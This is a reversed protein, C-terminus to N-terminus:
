LVPSLIRLLPHEQCQHSTSFLFRTSLPTRMSSWTHLPCTLGPPADSCSRSSPQTPHPPSPNQLLPAEPGQPAPWPAPSLHQQSPQYSSIYSFHISLPGKPHRSNDCSWLSASLVTQPAHSACLVPKQFRPVSLCFDLLTVPPSFCLEDLHSFALGERM